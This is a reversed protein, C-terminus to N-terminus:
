SKMTTEIVVVQKARRNTTVSITNVENNSKRLRSIFKLFIQFVLNDTHFESLFVLFIILCKTIKRLLSTMHLNRFPTITLPVGFLVTASGCLLLSYWRVTLTVILNFLHRKELRITRLTGVKRKLRGKNEFKKTMYVTNVGVEDYYYNVSQPKSLLIM